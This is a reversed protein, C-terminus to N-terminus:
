GGDDDDLTCSLCIRYALSENTKKDNELDDLNNAFNSSGLSEMSISYTAKQAHKKKRNWTFTPSKGDFTGISVLTRRGGANM